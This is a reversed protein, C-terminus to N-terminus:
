PLADPQMGPAASAKTDRDKQASCNDELWQRANRLELLVNM